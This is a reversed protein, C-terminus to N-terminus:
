MKRLIYNIMEGKNGKIEPPEIPRIGLLDAVKRLTWGQGSKITLNSLWERTLLGADRMRRIQVIQEDRTGTPNTRLPMPIELVEDEDEEIIIERKPAPPRVEEDREHPFVVVDVLPRQGAPILAQPPEAIVTQTGSSVRLPPETQTEIERVEQLPGVMGYERIIQQSSVSPEAARSFFPPAPQAPEKRMGEYFDMVYDRIDRMQLQPRMEQKEEAVPAAPAPLAPRLQQEIRLLSQEFPRILQQLQSQPEVFPGSRPPFLNPFPLNSPQGPPGPPPRQLPGGGGSGGAPGLPPPRRGPARRAPAKRRKTEGIVIKVNQIQKQKQTM